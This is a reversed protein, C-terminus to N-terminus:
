ANELDAIMLKKMTMMSQMVRRNREPDPGCILSGLVTPIIQWSIGWRDKLWGCRGPEGGDATFAEWLRDIEVQTEVNVMLSFGQAFSFSDGGDMAMFRQGDLEFSAHILAGNDPNQQLGFLKANDFQSTYFKVADAGGNAFMLFSTIKPM